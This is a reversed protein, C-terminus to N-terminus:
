LYFGTIGTQLTSLYFISVRETLSPQYLLSISPLYLYFHFWPKCYLDFLFLGRYLTHFLALNTFPAIWVCRKENFGIMHFYQFYLFVSLCLSITGSELWIPLFDLRAHLHPYQCIAPLTYPTSTQYTKCFECQAQGV